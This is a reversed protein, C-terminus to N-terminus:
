ESRKAAVEGHVPGGLLRIARRLSAAAIADTDEIYIRRGDKLVHIPGITHDALESQVATLAEKKYGGVLIPTLADPNLLMDVDNGSDGAKFGATIGLKGILYVMADAKTAPVIDLCFKRREAGPPLTANFHIEECTVIKFRPFFVRAQQALMAADTHNAMFNLSIKYPEPSPKQEVTLEYSAPSERIFRMTELMVAACKYGTGVLWDAYEQDQRWQDDQRLWIDTGVSSIIGDPLPIEGSDIRTQAAQFQLGTVLILDSGEAALDDRLQHAEQRLTPDGGREILTDDIDTFLARRFM